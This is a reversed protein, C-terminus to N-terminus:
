FPEQIGGKERGGMGRQHRSVVDRRVPAVVTVEKSGPESRWDMGPM